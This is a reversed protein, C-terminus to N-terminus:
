KSYLMAHRITYKRLFTSPQWTTKSQRLGEKDLDQEWNLLKCGRSVLEKTVALAMYSAMDKHCITKEFHCLAYGGPLLENISFGCMDGDIRAVTILLGLEQMHELARQLALFEAKTDDDDKDCETAWKEFADEIERVNDFQECTVVSLHSGYMTTVHHVKNRKKKFDIGVMAAITAADYIYDHNGRDEEVLYKDSSQLEQAVVEPVFELREYHTLLLGVTEDLKNTGLVSVAPLGTIYHPFRIVLNGNLLAVEASQDVDWAYLSTFNFDSYPDYAATIARLEDKHELELRSFEPFTAIM